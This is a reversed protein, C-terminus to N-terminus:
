RRRKTVTHVSKAVATGIILTSIAEVVGNIGVFAVMFSFVNLGDPNMGQLFDTNGYFLMLMPVFILTNLLATSLSALAYSLIGKNNSKHMVEFILGALFGAIIRPVLCLLVAFLPNISMLMTGFPEFGFCQIISMVGFVGGLFAGAKKNIVIAGVAVPIPLFTISLGFTRLYGLPTFSMIAIIASLIGIQVLTTTKTQKM